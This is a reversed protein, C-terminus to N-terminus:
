DTGPPAACRCEPHPAVVRETIEAGDGAIRIRRGADAVGDLAAVVVRAAIALASATRVPHTAPPRLGTLQAAIAPWAPDADREHLATCHLCASEGPTVLPGVTIATDGTIIPLHPIDRQLWGRHDAPTVIRDAV